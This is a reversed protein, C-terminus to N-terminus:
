VSIKFYKEILQMRFRSYIIAIRPCLAASQDITEFKKKNIRDKRRDLLYHRAEFVPSDYYTDFLM